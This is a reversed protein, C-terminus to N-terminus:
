RNQLNDIAKSLCEDCLPCSKDPNAADAHLQWPAYSKKGCDACEYLSQIEEKIPEM